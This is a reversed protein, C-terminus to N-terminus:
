SLGTGSIVYVNSAVCLVTAVGYQALTRNGTNSTGAQRLTVGSGQSITQSTASNNYIMANQGATMATATTIAVGGTTIDVYKGNDTVQLVYGSTQINQVITAIESRTSSITPGSDNSVWQASNGDNIYVYQIGTESNVWYDGANPTPSVPPISSYTTKPFVSSDVSGDAKLFQASTGGARIFSPATLGTTSATISLGPIRLSTISSNGLTIENSVISASTTADAGIVINNSGSTLNNTGTNTANSGIITNQNGSALNFAATRGIATNHDGLSSYLARPGFASNGTGGGNTRLADRGFAANFGGSNSKLAEFGFADAYLNTGHMQLAMMGVATNGNGNSNLLARDGIATNWTGSTVSSLAQFGVATNNTGSTNVLLSQYGLATNNIGTNVNAAQYGLATTFPTLTQTLGYVTGLTTQTAASSGSGLNITSGNIRAFIGSTTTWLDGNIPASPDTGHPINLSSISTTAAVANITSGVNLGNKVIFNKDLTAM